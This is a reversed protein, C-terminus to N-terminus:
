KRERNLTQRTYASARMSLLMDRAAALLESPKRTQKSTNILGSFTGYGYSVHMGFFVLPLWLASPSKRQLAVHLAAVFALGAYLGLLMALPTSMLLRHGDNLLVGALSLLLCGAMCAVFLFPIFHRLGMSAPNKRLSTVNWFGTLRMYGLLGRLTQKPSYCCHTKWTCYLKHGNRRLKENMDNDQNRTLCEDYGGAELLLNRKMVPYNVTDVFGETQTRFSKRSTGFPHSVAWAVLRAQLSDNAPVSIVRGGCGAAQHTLLEMLCTNIYHKHYITHAGFICVFQGRAHQLGLNFAFPTRRKENLVVRVRSDETALRDLIERTGDSSAGDIALVELEFGPTVQDLISALCKEIYDGENYTPLVISIVSPNSEQNM